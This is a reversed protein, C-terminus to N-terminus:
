DVHLVMVCVNEGRLTETRYVDHLIYQGFSRISDQAHASLMQVDVNLLNQM